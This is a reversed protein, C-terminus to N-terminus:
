SFYTYVICICTREGRTRELIARILANPIDRIMERSFSRRLIAYFSIAIM